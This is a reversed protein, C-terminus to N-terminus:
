ALDDLRASTSRVVLRTPCVVHDAQEARGEIRAILARAAIAGFEVVPQRMTTLGLVESVEHDDFGVISIDEPVRLGLDRAMRLAGFGMEDSIAFVGTPPSGAALLESMAEAGGDISFDGAVEREPRIHLGFERLARHYGARRLGPVDFPLSTESPAWILGIERHGLHLLHRAAMAAGSENDITVSPFATTQCGITVAHRGSAALELAEDDTIPLDVFILGDVRAPFDDGSLLRQRRPENEFAGLLLDYGRETLVAEAGAIVQSHFWTGLLPVAMGISMTRGAALRSAHPHARYGLGDAVTRVRERTSPAVNPLDRLARSVTAVSVGAADAVDEITVRRAGPDPTTGDPRKRM